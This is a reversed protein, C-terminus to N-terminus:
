QPPHPSKSGRARREQLLPLDRVARREAEAIERRQQQAQRAHVEAAGGGGRVRERLEARGTASAAFAAAQAGGGRREAVFAVPLASPLLDGGSLLRSTEALTRPGGAADTARRLRRWPHPPGAEAVGAGLSDAPHAGHQTRPEPLAEEPTDAASPRSSLQPWARPPPTAEKMTPPSVPAAVWRGGYSSETDADAAGASHLQPRGVGLISSKREAALGETRLTQARVGGAAWEGGADSAPLFFREAGALVACTPFLERHSLLPRGTHRSKFCFAHGRM